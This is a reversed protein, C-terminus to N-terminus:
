LGLRAPVTQAVGGLGRSSIRMLESKAVGLVGGAGGGGDAVSCFVVSCFVLGVLESGRRCQHSRGGEGALGRPGLPASGLRALSSARGRRDTSIPAGMRISSLISLGAPDIAGGCGRVSIRGSSMVAAGWTGAASGSSLTPGCAPLRA